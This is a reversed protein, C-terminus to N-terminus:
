GGHGDREASLRAPHEGDIRELLVCETGIKHLQQLLDGEVNSKAQLIQGGFFPPAFRLLRKRRALLAQLERHAGRLQTCELPIEDMPSETPVGMMFPQEPERGSTEISSEITKRGADVRLIQRSHDARRVLRTSGVAGKVVFEPHAPRVAALMPENSLALPVVRIGALRVPRVADQQLDGLPLPRFYRQMVTLLPQPLGGAHRINANEIMVLRCLREVPRLLQARDIAQARVFGDRKLVEQLQDVGVVPPSDGLRKLAGVFRRAVTEEVHLVPQQQAVAGDAPRACPCPGEKFSFAIRPMRNSSDAGDYIDGGLLQGQFLLLFQSLEHGHGM